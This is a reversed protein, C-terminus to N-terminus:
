ELTEPFRGFRREMEKLQTPCIDQSLRFRLRPNGLLEQYAEDGFMTYIAESPPWPFLVRFWPSFSLDLSLLAKEPNQFRRTPGIASKLEAEGATWELVESTKGGAAKYMRYKLIAADSALRKPSLTEPANASTFAHSVYDDPHWNNQVCIEGIELFRKFARNSDPRGYPRTGYKHEFRLRYYSDYAVIAGVYAPDSITGPIM